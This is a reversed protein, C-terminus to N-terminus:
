TARRRHNRWITAIVLLTDRGERFHSGGGYITPVSVSNIRYGQRAARIIFDTEFDYRDGRAAVTEAVRRRIARFGSQTDPLRRGAVISIAASSLANSLRRHVPMSTGSRRRTGVVVDAHELAALLRPAYAPDHQGDSDITLISDAGLALAEAIGARLASGKGQNRSFAIARDCHARIVAGTADRSGDDIGVVLIGPVATRLGDIVGGLTAAADLAPVVAVARTM